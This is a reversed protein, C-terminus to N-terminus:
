MVSDFDYPGYHNAENHLDFNFAAGAQINATEVRIYQDRDGRSQEHWFGLTHGLEHGMIFRNGWSTINMVQEFGQRGVPSNNVTSAQIHVYDWEVSRPLFQVNAVAQWEDMAALMANRNEATVNADFEYPVIGGLWYSTTPGLYTAAPAFSPEANTLVLIDEEIVKYGAPITEKQPAPQDGSSRPATAVLLALSAALAVAPVKAGLIKAKM